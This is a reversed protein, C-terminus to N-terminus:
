CQLRGIKQIKEITESEKRQGERWKEEFHIWRSMVIKEFGEVAIGRVFKGDRWPLKSSVHVSIVGHPAGRWFLSSVSRYLITVFMYLPFTIYNGLSRLLCIRQNCWVRVNKCCGWATVESHKREAFWKEITTHVIRTSSHTCPICGSNRNDYHGAHHTAPGQVHSWGLTCMPRSVLFIRFM